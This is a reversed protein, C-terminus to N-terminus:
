VLDLPQQFVPDARQRRALLFDQLAAEAQMVPLRLRQFDQAVAQPEGAFAHPLDLVLRQQFQPPVHRSVPDVLASEKLKTMGSETRSGHRADHLTGGMGQGTRTKSMSDMGSM